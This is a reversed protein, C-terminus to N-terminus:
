RTQTTTGKTKRTEVGQVKLEEAEKWRGQNTYTTALNGM